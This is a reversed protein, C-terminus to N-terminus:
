FPLDEDNEKVAVVNKLEDPREFIFPAGNKNKLHPYFSDFPRYYGNEMKKLKMENEIVKRIYSAAYQNNKSFWLDKVDIATAHFVDKQTCNAFFDSAYMEILKHCEGRSEKKILALPKTELEKPTFVHRDTTLDVDPMQSLYRLFKPIEARIKRVTNTDEKELSPVERVWYRVEASDIRAFDIKNTGMIVKAYFPLQVNSVHKMNMNIAGATVMSKLKESTTNKEIISEDVIIINKTAYSENFSITLDEPNILVSNNGFVMLLYNLFTTKGTKRAESYLVLIPLQQKPHDYLIKFYKLGMKVQEGFIHNFMFLTAPIDKEDVVGEFEKHQFESHLNYCNRIIPQYNKNDPEIVFDDFKPIENLFMAGYDQKIEDKKWRKLVTRDVELIDSKRIIKFYDTGVRIYNIDQGMYKTTIHNIAGLFSNQFKVAMMVDFKSLVTGKKINFRNYRLCEIMGDKLRFTTDTSPDEKSFVAVENDNKVLTNQVNQFVDILRGTSNFFEVPNM